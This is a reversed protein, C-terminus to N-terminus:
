LPPGTSTSADATGNWIWYPSNGDAYNPASNRAVCTFDDVYARTGAPQAVSANVFAGVRFLDAGAPSTCTQSTRTWAGVSGTTSTGYVGGVYSGSVRFSCYLQASHAVGATFYIAITYTTNGTIPFGYGDKGGVDYLSLLNTSSSLNAASVSYTGSRAKASDWTKPYVAGINSYWGTSSEASPNMALNTVAAIGGQGHGPCGGSTPSSQANSIYLSTSGQTGTVCFSTTSVTYQYTVSSNSVDAAALSPPYANSNTSQYVQVKKLTQNLSSSVAAARARQQM